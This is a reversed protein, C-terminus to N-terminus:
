TKSRQVEVKVLYKYKITPKSARFTNNFRFRRVFDFTDDKM